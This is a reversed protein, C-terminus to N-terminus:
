IINIKSVGQKNLIFCTVNKLFELSSILLYIFTYIFFNYYMMKQNMLILIM